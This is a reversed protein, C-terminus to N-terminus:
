SGEKKPLNQVQSFHIFQCTVQFERLKLSSVVTQRSHTLNVTGKVIYPSSELNRMFEAVAENNLAVGDFTLSNSAQILKEFWIKEAPIEASILAMLRVITDRDRQLNVIVARKKDIIEKKKSVEKLLTEYKALQDAEKKVQALRDSVNQREMEQFFWIAGIVIVTVLVSALYAYLIQRVSIKRKKARVPLLNIQIM